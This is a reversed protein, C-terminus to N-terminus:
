KALCMITSLATAKVLLESKSTLISEVTDFFPRMLGDPSVRDQRKMYTDIISVCVRRTSRQSTLHTLRDHM